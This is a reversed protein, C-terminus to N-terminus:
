HRYYEITPLDYKTRGVMKEGKDAKQNKDKQNKDIPNQKHPNQKHERQLHVSKLIRAVALAEERSNQNQKSISMFDVKRINPDLAQNM